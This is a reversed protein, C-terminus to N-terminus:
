YRIMNRWKDKLDVETREEFVDRYSNLIVKWNGTGFKKVGTRLTDEEITSWKKVKRRKAYNMNVHKKLPSVLRRKPTPLHLRRGRNPSGEPVTDISDDWEYAIATSNRAMLSAKPVNNQPGCCQNEHNSENALAAEASTGVSPDPANVRGQGVSPEQIMNKGGMSSIVNDALQLADPLPDKVVAQLELSSTRLAEQVKNIEPTPLCDYTNSSKRADMEETNSIKFGRSTGATAGRSRKVAVHKRVPLVVGRQMEKNDNPVLLDCSLDPLSAGREGVVQDCKGGSSWGLVERMADDSVTGAVVELFSPGMSEWAEAVYARVAELTDIGKGKMRAIECVSSDCVAAEIDDKWCVLEDSVLGVDELRDMKWFRGRWIRKVADFYKEREDLFRLTCDVAVSCYARKMPESTAVKEEYDLEEIRELFELIKESVSGEAIESEIRRLFMAKKLRWDDNSIPLVRLLANLVRDDISKRLLFELVWRAVDIDM